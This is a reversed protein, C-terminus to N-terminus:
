EKGLTMQVAERANLLVVYAERVPIGTLAALADAYLTIQKRHREAHKAPDGEVHDTKYDVLVWAGNEIFCADIVGQLLIPDTRDTDMLRNAPVPRVFSQERLVREATLMRRWLPSRVFWQVAALHAKPVGGVSDALAALAEDSVATLPLREMIAHVRSGLTAGDDREMFVPDEFPALTKDGLATVSTKAPLDTVIEYPYEWDLADHLAEIDGPEAAPLAPLAPLEAPAAFEAKTHLQPALYGNLALLLLRMGNNASRLNHLTPAPLSALKEEAGRVCGCLFLESRARTMGVYLVRLEEQWSADAIASQILRRAYTKRKCGDADLFTLGVGYREHLLLPDKEDARNFQGGLAALYVIPFELGKSKHITMIRVVNATVTQSAGLDAAEAADDMFALFSHVGGAGSADFSRAREILADLNLVRQVGGPLAGMRERLQTEDLITELLEEMPVRRSLSRWAALTELMATVHPVESSLVCEHLPVKPRATRLAILEADTFGFFPSRMVSLLPIDQRRNDLVRLLNLVLQVEIAEFYGGALQAYAPIGAYALTEAFVAAHKKGRLLIAFDGYRPARTEGTKSDFLPRNMREAIAGAILRAEGEADSTSEEDADTKKELVHCEVAGGTESSGRYLRAAADYEIGAIPERMITEFVRNVADIVAGGSRFNQKLDIRTGAEGTFTRCKELFLKPEAKRFRYISQKVDGVFFENDARAIRSLIAEQVRNSDQYEDVIVYQFRSRYEAAIRDDQLIAITMHELDDFDLAARQRKEEAFSARFTRVLAFLPVILAAGARQTQFLAEADTEYREIQAKILKVTASKADKVADAEEPSLGKLSPLNWKTPIAALAQGYAARDTQLLAGRAHTLLNDLKQLAKDFAPPLLDRADNLEALSLTLENKDSALEDALLADFAARDTLTSETKHLWADPDPDASLFRDIQDLTSILANEGNFGGILARYTEPQEAALDSLVRERVERRLVASETEDLMKAAPSLGVRFFHRFVVKSCFAHMTSINASAVRQSQDRLYNKAQADAAEAAATELRAAIRTKMEGAAARTFTLILMRDIPCGNQVLRYVRETLVSTKGAGAAASVIVNGAADIARQQDPNWKM